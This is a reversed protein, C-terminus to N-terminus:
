HTSQLHLVRDRFHDCVHIEGGRLQLHRHSNRQVANGVNTAQVSQVLVVHSGDIEIRLRRDLRAAMHNGASDRCLIRIRSELGSRSGNALQIETTSGVHPAIERHITRATHMINAARDPEEGAVTVAMSVRNSGFWSYREYVRVVCEYGEGSLVSEEEFSASVSGNMVADHLTKVITQFDGKVTREARAM